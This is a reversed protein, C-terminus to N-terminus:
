ELQDLQAQTDAREASHIWSDAIGELLLTTRPWKRTSKAWARYQAAFGREQNGGDFLDKTFAGRM